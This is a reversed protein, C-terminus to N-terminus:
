KVEGFSAGNDFWFANGRKSLVGTATVTSRTRHARIADNYLRGSLEIRVTRSAKGVAGSVTVIGSEDDAGRELRTVQGYITEVDPEPPRRELRTRLSELAPIVDRDVRVEAVSPPAVQEAKAWSFSLDLSRLGDYQTMGNLADVMNASLGRAVAEDLTHAGTHLAMERVSDLGRALTAMVRREFPPIRVEGLDAGVQLRAIEHKAEDEPLSLAKVQADHLATSDEDDLPVVEDEGLHTLITIIFSGRQTHGMRVDDRVFDRALDPRRGKHESRPRVTSLAASLLLANAGKLMSEAQVLPISGDAAVQDARIYMVDSRASVVQVALQQATWDNVLCLRALAEHFRPAFDGLSTDTPLRLRAEIHSGESLEWIQALDNADILSWGSSGLYAAVSEPSLDLDAPLDSFASM